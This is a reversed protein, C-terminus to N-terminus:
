SRLEGAMTYRCGVREQLIRQFAGRVSKSVKEGGVVLRTNKLDYRSNKKVFCSVGVTHVLCGVKRTNNGASDDPDQKAPERTEDLLRRLIM